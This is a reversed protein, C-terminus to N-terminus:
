RGRPHALGAQRHQQLAREGPRRGSRTLLRLEGLSAVEFGAGPTGSTELVDPVSNCKVAYFPDVGPLASRFRGIREVLHQLDCALFPTPLDLRDLVEPHLTDPWHAPLRLVAGLDRMTVTMTAGQRPDPRATATVMVGAREPRPHRQAPDARRLPGPTPPPPLPPAFHYGQGTTCGQRRLMLMEEPREIGEAVTELHMTHGLRVITSVLAGDGGNSMREIFSRDIKLVDVPFRHLYSLSSYGTGFDDIALRVGLTRSAGAANGADGRHRGHLVSETMELTLNQPACGATRWRAPSSTSLSDDDLQRASM